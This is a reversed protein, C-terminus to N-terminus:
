EDVEEISAVIKTAVAPADFCEYFEDVFKDAVDEDLPRTLGLTRGTHRETIRVRVKNM